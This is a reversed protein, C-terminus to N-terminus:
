RYEDRILSRSFNNQCDSYLIDFPEEENVIKDVYWFTELIKTRLGTKKLVLGCM